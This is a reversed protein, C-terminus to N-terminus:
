TGKHTRNSETYLSVSPSFCLFFFSVLLIGMIWSNLVVTALGHAQYLRHLLGVQCLIGFAIQLGVLVRAIFHGLWLAVLLGASVVLGTWPNLRMVELLDPVVLSAIANLLMLGGLLFVAIFFQTKGSRLREAMDDREEKELKAAQAELNEGCAPCTVGDTLCVKHYAKACPSCALGEPAFNIPKDCTACQSGVIQM